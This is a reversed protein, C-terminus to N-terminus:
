SHGTDDAFFNPLLFANSEFFCGFTSWKRFVEAETETEM